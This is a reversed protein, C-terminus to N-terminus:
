ASVGWESGSALLGVARAEIPNDHPWMRHSRCTAAFFRTDWLLPGNRGRIHHVETSRIAVGFIEKCVRCWRHSRLYPARAKRYKALRDQQKESTAKLPTRKWKYPKRKFGSKRKLPTRRNWAM